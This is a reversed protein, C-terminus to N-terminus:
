EIGAAKRKSRSMRETIVQKPAQEPKPTLLAPIKKKFSLVLITIGGVIFPISLIQGMNIIMGSEFDVQDNKIFEIIFRMGFLVILFIGFLTGRYMKDGKKFYLWTLVLGLILYSLAEYLQTPHCAVGDPPFVSPGYNSVWEYSRVFKFGWPMTTAGGFIESNFLNGLRISMGAYCVAIGLRDLAWIPGFDYKKGYKHCYWIICLILAIAGGHSALGGEWVKLIEIPHTLYYGPQYFLCHGLRAGVITGFLLIYLLPELLAVDVGERKYFKSFLWYGFPFGAVFLLSYYRLAVPGIHCIVPDINWTVSLFHM